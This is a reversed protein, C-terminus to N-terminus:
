HGLCAIAAGRSGLLLREEDGPLHGSPALTFSAQGCREGKRPKDRNSTPNM